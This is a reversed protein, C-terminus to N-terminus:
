ERKDTYHTHLLQHSLHGLPTKLYESYLKVISPNEHSKRVALHKDVDYIAALRKGVQERTSGYPQGGGGVCGGPCAMVEIFLYPSTGNKIQECILKANSLTHVVAVKLIQGGISLSAEKFGDMGRVPIFDLNDLPKETLAEVVTRLAAEMVGGTAGFLAAAGTTEGFPRDFESEELHSFDIGMQRIMKGLERTTLSIDVDPDKQNVSMEPRTAEFKKATCPMISVVFIDKPDLGEKDAYYSKALAGFMQQPSKCSSVNPIVEPYRHELYNIWAPCCSTLMPLTGNDKIRKLLENGEELITLDATFNTDFVRDFGMLKLASVMKGTVVEGVSYGLEEGLSVRIAPAIQIIVHKSSDHIAEWVDTTQDKEMIAGVPCVNACQGCYTCFVDALQHHYAPGVTMAQGRGHFDLVSMGQVTRCVEVCRGCKICRNPNRVISPTSLDLEQIDLVSEFRREDIGLKNALAQLECHMNRVCTTCSADHNALLLEVTNKRSNIVRPSNTKVVMGEKPYTSCATSLGKQGDIEVVCVRCESHIGLDTYNCLTPIHISNEKAITLITKTEDATIKQNNITFNIM